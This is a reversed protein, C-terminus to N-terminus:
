LWGALRCVVAAIGAGAFLWGAATVAEIIADCM